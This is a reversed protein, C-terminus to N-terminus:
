AGQPEYSVLGQALQEDREARMLRLGQQMTVPNVGLEDIMKRISCVTNKPRPALTPFYESTVPTILGRDCNFTDAVQLSFEYSSASEPGGIHFMGYAQKEIGAFIADAVDGTWVHNNIVDDVVKIPQGNSLKSLLWTVWNQRQGPLHWGYIPTPRLALLRDSMEFALQEALLKTHGYFGLPQPVDAESYPPNNGDFVYITSCLVFHPRSAQSAELLYRTGNVNVQWAQDQQEEGCDLDGISATHIIVDPQVRDVVDRVQQRDRLELPLPEVQAPLRSPHANRHVTVVVDWDSPLRQLLTWGLLGTAGTLLVRM